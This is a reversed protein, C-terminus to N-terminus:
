NTKQADVHLGGRIDLLNVDPFDSERFPTVRVNSFGSQTLLKCLDKGSYMWKHTSFESVFGHEHSTVFRQMPTIDDSEYAELASKM